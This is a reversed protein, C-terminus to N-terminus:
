YKFLADHIQQISRAPTNNQNLYYLHSEGKALLSMVRNYLSHRNTSTNLFVYHEKNMLFDLSGPKDVDIYRIFPTLDKMRKQWNLHGGIVVISYESSSMKDIYEEITVGQEQAVESLAKEQYVYNRLAIREKEFEKLKALERHASALEKEMDALKQQQEYYREELKIREKRFEEIEKQQQTKDQQYQLKDQEIADRMKLIISTEESKAEEIYKMRTEKYEKILSVLLFANVLSLNREKEDLNYHKENDLVIAIINEVEEHSFIKDSIMGEYINYYKALRTVASFRKSLDGKELTIERSPIFLGLDHSEKITLGEIIDEFSISQKNRLHGLYFNEKIAKIENKKFLKINQLSERIYSKFGSDGHEEYYVFEYFMNFIPHNFPIDSEYTIGLYLLVSLDNIISQESQNVLLGDKNKSPNKMYRKILSLVMQENNMNFAIQYIHKFGKKILKMTIKEQLSEAESLMILSLSKELYFSNTTSLRDYTSMSVYNSNLYHKKAEVEYQAYLEDIFYHLYPTTAFAIALYKQESFPLTKVEKTLSKEVRM